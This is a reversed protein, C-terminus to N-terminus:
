FMQTRWLDHLHIIGEIRGGGDMVVLSTIRREEMLSLAEAALHDRGITVPNVTMCDAATRDLARRGQARLLRRLDGDTIIGALRGDRGAVCTMGLKKASMEEVVQRLRARPPVVPIDSGRHMLKEVKLLRRGATGRPHVFAFDDESLGKKRMLAIALADGLALAATSSATPIINGPGAERDVRADLVIDSYSAIRSSPCGTIAILRVGLRKFVDLLGVIERTEGSYSVAVVVDDKQIIGLDGHGAEAPHIFVAPTGCSALTAALKRGVLGSKGMGTVIVRGKSRFLLDVARAFDAGVRDRLGTVAAAETELVERAIRILDKRTM